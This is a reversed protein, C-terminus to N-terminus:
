KEGREAKDRARKTYVRNNSTRHDECYHTNPRDFFWKECVECQRVYGLIGMESLEIISLILGAVPGASWVWKSRGKDDADYWTPTMGEPVCQKVRGPISREVKQLESWCKAENERKRLEVIRQLAEILGIVQGPVSQRENKEWRNLKRILLECMSQHRKRERSYRTEKVCM